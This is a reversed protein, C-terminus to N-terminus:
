DKKYERAHLIWKFDHEFAFSVKYKSHWSQSAEKETIGLKEVVENVTIISNSLKAEKLLHCFRLRQNPTM